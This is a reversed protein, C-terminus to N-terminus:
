PAEAFAQDAARIIVAPRQLFNADGPNRHNTLMFVPLGIRGARANMDNSIRFQTCARDPEAHREEKQDPRATDRAALSQWNNVAYDARPDPRADISPSDQAHVAPALLCLALLAARINKKM